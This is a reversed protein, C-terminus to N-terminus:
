LNLLNLLIPYVDVMDMTDNVAGSNVQPSMFVGAAQNEICEPEYGHMGKEAAKGCNFFSPFFVIGPDLLFILDGYGAEPGPIHYNAIDSSSLIRGMNLQRLQNRILSKARSNFFWFRAMTSDIFILYDRQLELDLDALVSMIDMSAKVDVMGHDGLIVLHCFRYNEVFHEYLRRLRADIMLLATQIEPGSTGWRHGILDLESLHVFWFDVPATSGYVILDVLDDDSTAWFDPGGFFAFTKGAKRILDFVTTVGLVNPEYIRKKTESLDFLHLIDLPIYAPGPWWIDPNLLRTVQAVAKRPLLLRIPGPLWQLWRFVSDQPDYRFMTFM